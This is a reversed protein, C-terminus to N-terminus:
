AGVAASCSSFLGWDWKNDAYKLFHPASFIIIAAIIFYVPEAKATLLEKLLPVYCGFFLLLATAVAPIIWPEVMGWIECFTNAAAEKAAEDEAFTLTSTVMLLLMAFMKKYAAINLKIGYVCDHTIKSMKLIQDKM